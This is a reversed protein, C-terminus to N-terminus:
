FLSSEANRFDTALLEDIRLEIGFLYQSLTAIGLLLIILSFGYGLKLHLRPSDEPDSKLFFLALSAFMLGLATNAKMSTASFGKLEPYVLWILLLTSSTFFGVISCIKPILKIKNEFSLDKMM